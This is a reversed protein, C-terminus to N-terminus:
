VIGPQGDSGEGWRFDGFRTQELTKIRDNTSAEGFVNEYDIMQALIRESEAKMEPFRDDQRVEWLYALSRKTLYQPNPIEAVDMPSALSQFSKYYPVLVSAGSALTPAHVFMTYNGKLNGWIEVWRDPSGVSGTNGRNTLTFQAKEQPRVEPFRDTTQGDWVIQPFSALKRFNKPLAISANGTSTSVLLNYEDYLVQWDYAEQWEQMAMNIFKLRLAYDTSSIDATLPDQDALSAIQSQVEDVTIAAMIVGM